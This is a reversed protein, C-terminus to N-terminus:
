QTTPETTTANTSETTTSSTSSSSSETSSSTTASYEGSSSSGGSLNISETSSSYMPEGNEFSSESCEGKARYWVGGKVWICWVEGTESDEMELTKLHATEAKIKKVTLLGNEDITMIESSSANLFILAQPTSTSSTSTETIRLKNAFIIDGANMYQIYSAYWSRADTGIYGLREGPPLLYGGTENTSPVVRDVDGSCDDAYTTSTASVVTSSATSGPGFSPNTSRYFYYKTAGEVPVWSLNIITGAAGTTVSTIASPLTEGNDNAATIRYYYTTNACSGGTSTSNFIPASPTPLQNLTLNGSLTINQTLDLNGTPSVKMVYGGSSWGTVKFGITSNRIDIIVDGTGGVTLTLNEYGFPDGAVIRL